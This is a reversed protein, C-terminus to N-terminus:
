ADFREPRVFKTFQKGCLNHYRSLNQRYCDKVIHHTDMPFLASRSYGPRPM